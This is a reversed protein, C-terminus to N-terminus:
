HTVGSSCVRFLLMNRVSEQEYGPLQGPRAGTVVGRMACCCCCRVAVFCSNSQPKAGTVVDPLAFIESSRGQLQGQLKKELHCPHIEFLLGERSSVAAYM